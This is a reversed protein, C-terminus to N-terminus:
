RQPQPESSASASHVAVVCGRKEGFRRPRMEWVRRRCEGTKSHTRLKGDWIRLHMEFGLLFATPVPHFLSDYPSTRFEILMDPGSSIIDPLSDGGCVRALEPYATTRGDYVSIYDQMSDCQKWTRRRVCVCVYTNQPQLVLLLKVLTESFLM